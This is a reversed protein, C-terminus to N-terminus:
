GNNNENENEIEVENNNGNDDNMNEDEVDNGKMIEKLSKISAILSKRAEKFNEKIDIFITKAEEKTLSDAEETASLIEQLKEQQDLVVSLHVRSIELLTKPESTDFGQEDAWTIRKEVRVQMDALKQVANTLRVMFGNRAQQRFSEKETSNQTERYKAAIERAEQLNQIYNTKQKEIRGQLINQRTPANQTQYEEEAFAIASPVALTIIFLIIIIKKM